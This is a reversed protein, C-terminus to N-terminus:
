PALLRERLREIVAPDYSGRGPPLGERRAFADLAERIARGDRGDVPAQTAGLRALGSQAFRVLPRDVAPVAGRATERRVRNETTRAAGPPVRQRLARVYRGAQAVGGREAIALRALAEAEDRATGEGLVQLLGLSFQADPHGREAARQFWVAAWYAERRTGDGAEILRALRFQAEAHGQHAARLL